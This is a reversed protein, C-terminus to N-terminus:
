CLNPLGFTELFIGFTLVITLLDAEFPQNLSFDEAMYELRLRNVALPNFYGQKRITEESLLHDIWQADERLLAPSGPAYWGFKEREVIERIVFPASALKLIYKEEYGSLLDRPALRQVYRILNLDLFPHRVEVAHAMAMRDGHDTLLHDALRLKFDLYSRQHVFHRNKLKDKNILPADYSTFNAYGENLRDSYLRLKIRELGAYDDDYIVHPDGWLRTRIAFEEESAGNRGSSERRFQDVRYGIYGALLEDAGQGTLVVPVGASRAQRSLALCATDHTEKIPSEAHYVATQLDRVIDSTVFPSEHHFSDIHRAMNRQYSGECMEDGGFSVSFSHRPGPAIHHAIGAVVSSDLGGSLYVGVPVDAQLRRSVSAILLQQLEEASTAAPQTNGDIAGIEPYCLDWYQHLHVGSENAVLYHGPPVSSVGRLM